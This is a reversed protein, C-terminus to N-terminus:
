VAKLKGTRRDMRASKGRKNMRCKPMFIEVKTCIRHNRLWDEVSSEPVMLQRRRESGVNIVDRMEKMRARATDSSCGMVEAVDQVRYWKDM